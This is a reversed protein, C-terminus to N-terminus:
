LEIGYKKAFDQTSYKHYKRMVFKLHEIEKGLRENRRQTVDIQEIATDSVRKNRQELIAIRNEKLELQQILWYINGDCHDGNEVMMKMAKGLETKPQFSDDLELIEM